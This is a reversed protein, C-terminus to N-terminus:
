KSLVEMVKRAVIIMFVFLLFYIQPKLAQRIEPKIFLWGVESVVLLGILLLTMYLDVSKAVLSSIIVWVAIVLVIADDVDV